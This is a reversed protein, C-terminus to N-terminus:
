RGRGGREPGGRGWRERSVSRERDKMAELKKREGPKVKERAEPSAQRWARAGDRELQERSRHLDPGLGRKAAEIQQGAAEMIERSVEKAPLGDAIVKSVSWQRVYNPLHRAEGTARARGPSQFRGVGVGQLRGFDQPREQLRKLAEAGGQERALAEFRERAKEPKAYVRSLARDLAESRRETTAEAKERGALDRRAEAMAKEAEGQVRRWHDFNDLREVARRPAEDMMERAREAIRRADVEPGGDM